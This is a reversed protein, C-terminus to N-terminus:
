HFNLMVFDIQAKNYLIFSPVDRALGLNNRRRCDKLRCDEQQFHGCQVTQEGGGHQVTQENGGREERLYVFTMTQHDTM